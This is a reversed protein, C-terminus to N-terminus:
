RCLRSLRNYESPSDMEHDKQEAIDYSRQHLDGITKMVESKLREEAIAAEPMSNVKYYAKGRMLISLESEVIAEFRKLHEHYNRVHDMEHDITTEYECSGKNLGPRVWIVPPTGGSKIHMSQIHVCIGQESRIREFNFQVEFGYAIHALGQLVGTSSTLGSLDSPRTRTLQPNSIKTETSIEPILLCTAPAGTRSSLRLRTGDIFSEITSASAVDSLLISFIASSIIVKM